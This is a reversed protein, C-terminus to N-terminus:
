DGDIDLNEELEADEEDDKSRDWAVAVTVVDIIVFHWQLWRRGEVYWGACPFRPQARSPCVDGM